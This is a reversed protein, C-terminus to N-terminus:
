VKLKLIICYFKSNSRAKISTKTGSAKTSYKDTQLTYLEKDMDRLVVMKWDWYGKYKTGDKYNYFRRKLCIWRWNNMNSSCGDDNTVGGDDCAESGARKGDGCTPVCSSKAADPYLGSTCASCTDRTSTTGGVWIYGSEITWTSSCEDGNTVGGDDWTESGARKGDGCQPICM